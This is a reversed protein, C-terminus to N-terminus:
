RVFHVVHILRFVPYKMRHENNNWNWFAISGRSFRHMNCLRLAGVMRKEISISRHILRIVPDNMRHNNNNLNWFSISSRSLRHMRHMLAACWDDSKSYIDFSFFWMFWGSVPDSMRQDNNSSPSVIGGSSTWWRGADSPLRLYGLAGSRAPTNGCNARSAPPEHNWDATFHRCGSRPFTQGDESARQWYEAWWSSM